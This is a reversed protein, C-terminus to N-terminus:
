LAYMSFVKFNTNRDEQAEKLYPKPVEPLKDPKGVSPIPSADAEDALLQRKKQEIAELAPFFDFCM